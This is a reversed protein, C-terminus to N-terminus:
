ASGKMEPIFRTVQDDLSLKGDKVAAGFLTSTLSKAVSFSTWRGTPGFGRAYRELRVKGDKLVILGAINQDALYKNVDSAPIALPRGPPLLRAKGGAKITVTPFLQEMRRFNADRQAQSWFLVEAGAQRLKTRESADVPMPRQATVPAALLLAAATLIPRM